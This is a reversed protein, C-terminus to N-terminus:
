LTPQLAALGKDTLRYSWVWRPFGQGSLGDGIGAAHRMLLGADHMASLDRGMLRCKDAGFMMPKTKAGTAAAYRDVAYRNLVDLQREREALRLLVAWREAQPKVKM